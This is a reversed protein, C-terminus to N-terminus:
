SGAILDRWIDNFGKKNEKPEGDWIQLVLIDKTRPFKKKYRITRNFIIFPDKIRSLFEAYEKKSDFIRYWRKKKGKTTRKTDLLYNCSTRRIEVEFM